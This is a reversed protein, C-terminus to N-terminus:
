NSNKLVTLSLRGIPRWTKALFSKKNEEREKNIEEKEKGKEEKKVERELNTVEKPRRM